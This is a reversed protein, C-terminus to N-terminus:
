LKKSLLVRGHTNERKKFRLFSTLDRLASYICRFFCFMPSSCTLRKGKNLDLYFVKHLFQKHLNVDKQAVLQLRMKEGM